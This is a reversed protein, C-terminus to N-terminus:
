MPSQQSEFFSVAYDRKVIKSLRCRLRQYFRKFAFLDVQGRLFEVLFINNNDMSQQLSCSMTATTMQFVQLACAVAGDESWVELKYLSWNLEVKRILGIPTEENNVRVDLLISEVTRLVEDAAVTTIFRSAKKVMDNFAPIGVTRDRGYDCTNHQDENDKEDNDDVGDFLDIFPQSDANPYFPPEASSCKPIDSTTDVVEDDDNEMEMEFIDDMDAASNKNGYQNPSNKVLYQLAELVTIRKAPDPHLMGVLLAKSEVSFKNPFLWEPYDCSPLM